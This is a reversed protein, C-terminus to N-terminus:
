TPLGEQLKEVIKSIRISVAAPTVRLRKAIESKPLVKAGGYGTTWELIKKGRPDLDHYVYDLWLQQPDKRVAVALDGKEGTMTSDPVEHIRMRRIRKLSMGTGDAVEDDAPERGTKEEFEVRFDRLRKEDLRAGEPVHIAYSRQARYRQLRQLNGYVHTKLSAGAAPDYSEFAQAALLKARTRLGPDGGGFSRLGSDLVPEVEKMVASFNEPSPNSRWSAWAEPVEAKRKKAKFDSYFTSPM